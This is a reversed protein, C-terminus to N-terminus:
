RWPWGRQEREIRGIKGTEGEMARREAERYTAEHALQCLPCLYLGCCLCRRQEFHAVYDGLCRPCGALVELPDPHCPCDPLGCEPREKTHLQNITVFREVYEIVPLHSTESFPMPRM